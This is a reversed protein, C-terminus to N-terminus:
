VFLPQFFLDAHPVFFTPFHRLSSFTLVLILISSARMLVPIWLFEQLPRRVSQGVDVRSGVQYLTAWPILETINRHQVLMLALTCLHGLQLLRLIELCLTTTTSFTM